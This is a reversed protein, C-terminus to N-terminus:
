IWDLLPHKALNRCKHSVWNNPLTPELTYGTLLHPACHAYVASGSGTMRASLGQAQLWKCAVNIDPCLTQAVDQLDNCGFAWLKDSPLNCLTSLDIAATNRTLENSKFLAPTSVGANPKVIWVATSPVTIPTIHEGIGQVFANHGRVFFPVDAGLKVAIDCLQQQNLGTNWLKNLAVLCTAADSSGGGLGAQAPLHKHLWIRAGLRTGTAQQLACAAQMCLDNDPLTLGTHANDIREIQGHPTVEIDLYDGWDLLMFISQLLHMGDERQGTVHLFTNIKAPAALDCWHGAGIQKPARM